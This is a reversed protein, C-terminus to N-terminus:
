LMGCLTEWSDPNSHVAHKGAEAQAADMELKLRAREMHEVGVDSQYQRQVHQHAQWPGDFGRVDRSGFGSVEHDLAPLM